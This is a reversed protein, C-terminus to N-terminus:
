EHRERERQILWNIYQRAKLLDNVGGKHEYRSVYKIVNGELFDLENKTIYEIPQIAFGVKDYHKPNTVEEKEFSESEDREYGNKDKTYVDSNRQREREETITKVIADRHRQDEDLGYNTM